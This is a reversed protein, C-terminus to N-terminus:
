ALGARCAFHKAVVWHGRVAELRSLERCLETVSRADEGFLSENIELAREYHAYAEDLRQQRQLLAALREHVRAAEQSDKGCINEAMTLACRLWQEAEAVRGQAEQLGALRWWVHLHWRQVEPRPAVQGLLGALQEYLQAARAQEGNAEYLKALQDLSQALRLPNHDEVTEALQLASLWLSKDPRQEASAALAAPPMPPMPPMPPQQATSGLDPRFDGSQPPLTRQEMATSRNANNM